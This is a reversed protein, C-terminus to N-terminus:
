CNFDEKKFEYGFEDKIQPIVKDALYGIGISYSFIIARQWYNKAEEIKGLEALFSGRDFEGFIFTMIKKTYVSEIISDRNCQLASEFNRELGEFFALRYKLRAFNTRELNNVFMKGQYDILFNVLSYAINRFNQENKSEYIRFVTISINTLLMIEEHTLLKGKLDSKLEYDPMTIHLVEILKELRKQLYENKTSILIAKHGYYFQEELKNMRKACTAYEELLDEINNNGSGIADSIEGKINYRRRDSKKVAIIGDPVMMGLRYFLAEALCYSMRVKGSEIKSLYSRTCIGYSLEELSIGKEIRTDRVLMAAVYNM